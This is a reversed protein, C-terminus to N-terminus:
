SRDTAVPKGSRDVTKTVTRGQRALSEGFSGNGEATDYRFNLIRSDASPMSVSVKLGEITRRENTGDLYREEASLVKVVPEIRTSDTAAPAEIQLRAEIVSASYPRVRGRADVVSQHLRLLGDGDPEIALQVNRVKSAGKGWVQVDLETSAAVKYEPAKWVGVFPRIGSSTNIKDQQANVTAALTGLVFLGGIAAAGLRSIRLM